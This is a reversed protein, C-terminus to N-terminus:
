VVRFISMHVYRGDPYIQVNGGANHTFAFKMVDGSDLHILTGGQMNIYYTGAALEVWITNLTTNLVGNNYVDLTASTSASWSAANTFFSSEVHYYGDETATFEGTALNYEGLTDIQENNSIITTPTSDSVTQGGSSTARVKSNGGHIQGAVNLDNSSNTLVVDNGSQSWLTYNSGSYDSSTKVCYITAYNAPQTEDDTRPVGNASDTIADQISVTNYQNGATRWISLSTSTYQALYHTASSGGNGVSSTVRQNHWHGQFSDNQYEGLTASPSLGTKANTGSGRVFIGRLDPTGSTGDAPIWGTPCSTLNFASIAGPPLGGGSSCGTLNGPRCITNNDLQVLTTYSSKDDSWNGINTVIDSLSLNNIGSIINDIQVITYYLSSYNWLGFFNNATVNGTVTLNGGISVDDTVTLDDGVSLNYTVSGYKSFVYGDVDISKTINYSNFGDRIYVEYLKFYPSGSGTNWSGILCWSGTGSSCVGDSDECYFYPSIGLMGNAYAHITLNDEDLCNSNISYNVLTGNNIKAELFTLSKNSYELFNYRLELDCTVPEAGDYYCVGYTDLDKDFAYSTNQWTWVSESYSNYYNDVNLYTQRDSFPSSSPTDCSVEGTTSASTLFDGASCKDNNLFMTGTFNLNGTLPDNTTDLRLYNSDLKTENIDLRGRSLSDLNFYTGNVWWGFDGLPNSSVKMIPFYFDRANAGLITTVIMVIAILIHLPKM